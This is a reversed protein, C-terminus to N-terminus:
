ELKCETQTEKKNSTKDGKAKVSAYIAAVGVITGCVACVAVTAPWGQLSIDISINKVANALTNPLSLNKMDM